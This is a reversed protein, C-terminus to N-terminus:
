DWLLSGVRDKVSRYLKTVTSPDVGYKVAEHGPPPRRATHLLFTLIAIAGAPMGHADEDERQHPAMVSPAAATAATTLGWPDPPAYSSTGGGILNAFANSALQASASPSSPAQPLRAPQPAHALSTLAQSVNVNPLEKAYREAISPGYADELWGTLVFSETADLGALGALMRFQQGAVAGTSTPVVLPGNAAAADILKAAVGAALQPKSSDSSFLAVDM